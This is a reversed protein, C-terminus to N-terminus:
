SGGIIVEYDRGAPDISSGTVNRIRITCENTATVRGEIILGEEIFGSIARVQVGMGPEAGDPFSSLNKLLETTSGGGAISGPDWTFRQQLPGLKETEGTGMYHALGTGFSYTLDSKEDIEIRGEFRGQLNVSGNTQVHASTVKTGADDMEIAGDNILDLLVAKLGLIDCGTGPENVLFARNFDNGGSRPSYLSLGSITVGSGVEIGAGQDAHWNGGRVMMNNIIGDTQKVRIGPLTGDAQNIYPGYLHIDDASDYLIPSAGTPASGNYYNVMPHIMRGVNNSEGAQAITTHNSSAGLINSEAAVFCHKGERNQFHPKFWTCEESAYNFVCAKKYHNSFFPAFFVNGGSSPRTGGDEPRALLLGIEPPNDPDGDVSLGYHITRVCGTMDIAPYQPTSTSCVLTGEMYSGEVYNVGQGTRGFWLSGDYVWEGPPVYLINQQATRRSKPPSNSPNADRIWQLAKDLANYNDAKGKSAGFDRIDVFRRSMPVSEHFAISSPDFPARGKAGEVPGGGNNKAKDIAAQVADPTTAYNAPDFVEAPASDPRSVILDNQESTPLDHQAVSPESIQSDPVAGNTLRSADSLDPGTARWDTGTSKYYKTEDVVYWIEGSHTSADVTTGDARELTSSGTKKEATGDVGGLAGLDNAAELVEDRAAFTDDRATESKQAFDEADLYANEIANTLQPLSPKPNGENDYRPSYLNRSAM